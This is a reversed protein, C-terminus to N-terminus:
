EFWGAFMYSSDPTTQPLSIQSWLTGKPVHMSNTGSISGHSGSEFRIDCWQGPDEVFDAYLKLDGTLEIDGTLVTGVKGTGTLM